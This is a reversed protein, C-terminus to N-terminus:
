KILFLLYDLVRVIENLIHEKISLGDEKDFFLKSDSYGCKEDKIINNFVSEEDELTEKSNKGLIMIDVILDSNGKNHYRPVSISIGGIICSSSFDEFDVVFFSSKDYNYINKIMKEYKIYKNDNLIAYFVDQYLENCANICKNDIIMWEELSNKLDM